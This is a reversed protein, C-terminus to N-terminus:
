EQERRASGGSRGQGQGQGQGQVPTSRAGKRLGYQEMKSVFTRLPMGILAAARRQNGGSRDLAQAIRRQELAAVEDAINPLPPEDAASQPPPTAAPAAPAQPPAAAPPHEPSRIRPPLHEPRLEDDLVAVAAYDMLNRLERVNGPWRYAALRSVVEHSLPLPAV